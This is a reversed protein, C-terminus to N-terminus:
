GGELATIRAGKRDFELQVKVRDTELTLTQQAPGASAVRLDLLRQDRLSELARNLERFAAAEQRGRPTKGYVAQLLARNSVRGREFLLELMTELPAVLNEPLEGAAAAVALSEYRARANPDPLARAFASAEVSVVEAEAPALQL